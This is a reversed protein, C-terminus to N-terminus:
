KDVVRTSEVFLVVLLRSLEGVVLGLDLMAKGAGWETLEYLAKAIKRNVFVRERYRVPNRYRLATWDNVRCQEVFGFQRIEIPSREGSAIQVIKRVLNVQSAKDQVVDCLHPTKVLPYELSQSLDM